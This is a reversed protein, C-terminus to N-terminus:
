YFETRDTDFNGEGLFFWNEVPEEGCEPCDLEPIELIRKKGIFLMHGCKHCKFVYDPNKKM